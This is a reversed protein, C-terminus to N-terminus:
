STAGGNSTRNADAPCRDLSRGAEDGDAKPPSPFGFLCNPALTSTGPIAVRPGPLATSAARWRSADEQALVMDALRDAREREAAAHAVLLAHVAGPVWLCLTLVLNVPLQRPQRSQLIAAPPLLVALLYRM